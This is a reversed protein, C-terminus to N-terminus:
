TSRAFLVIDASPDMEASGAIARELLPLVHAGNAPPVAGGFLANKSLNTSWTVISARLGPVKAAPSTRAPLVFCTAEAAPSPAVAASSM